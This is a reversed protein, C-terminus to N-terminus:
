VRHDRELGGDLAIQALAGRPHQRRERRALLAHQAHAEADAHVGVVRQFLDALLERHGALADALDLGLRQALQLVGASGPHQPAEEVLSSSRRTVRSSAASRATWPTPMQRPTIPAMTRTQSVATSPRGLSRTGM